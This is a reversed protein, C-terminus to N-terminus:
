RQSLLTSHYQIFATPRFLINLPLVIDKEGNVALFERSELDFGVNFKEEHAARDFHFVAYLSSLRQLGDLVYSVPFKEPVQPFNSKTPDEINLEKKNTKWLLVSGIPFGHYISELLEIVQKREWVFGRQFAPMRIDGGQIRRFVAPLYQVEPSPAVNKASNSM